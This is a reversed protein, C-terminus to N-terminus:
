LHEIVERLPEPSTAIDGIFPHSLELVLFLNAAVLVGVTAVMPFHLAPNEVGYIIACGVVLGSTLIIVAWLSWPPGTDARAQLVRETRSQSIENLTNFSDALFLKQTDNRPQVQKYATYLRDLAHDADPFAQGSAAEEWEAIAAHEYELLSQRIRDGDAEDFVTLNRALQVGAAGESRVKADADNIQGWMASVVFGIFFAYVFGVVGYAFKTVDNHADEKLRPFRRRVYLQILVAGGAIVVILGSLLLWSPVNSVLFYSV